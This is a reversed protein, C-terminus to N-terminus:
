TANIYEELNPLRSDRVSIQSIELPWTIGISLPNVGSDLDPVHSSDSLYLITAESFAQFGHAVGPPVLLTDGSSASMKKVQIKPSPSVNRLDVLVDYIEGSLVKIIRTSESKGLQVHMGRVVGPNSKTIFSEALQFNHNFPFNEASYFKQFTGREDEYTTGRWYHVGSIEQEFAPKM